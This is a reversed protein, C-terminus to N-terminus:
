QVRAKVAERERRAYWPEALGQCIVYSQRITRGHTGYRQQCTSVEELREHINRELPVDQEVQASLSHSLRKTRQSRLKAKLYETLASLSHCYPHYTTFLPM